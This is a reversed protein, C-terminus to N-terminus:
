TETLEEVIRAVLVETTDETVAFREDIRLGVVWAIDDGCTLLPVTEREARPVKANIMLDRVRQRHGLGLPIFWDGARRPRLALPGAHMPRALAGLDPSYPLTLGLEALKDEIQQWTRFSFHQHESPRRVDM